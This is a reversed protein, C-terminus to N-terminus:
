KNVINIIEEINPRKKYDKDLLCDILAEWKENYIDTNIKKKEECLQDVKFKNLTLLEYIICGLAYIDVKNNYKKGEKLEPAMYDFTGVIDNKYKSTGLLIVAIDFNCIKIKNNENICINEPKIDRHIINNNHIEKIGYCIQLIIDIIIKEDILKNDDKIHKEIFRRLNSEGGYEMLIYLYDNDKFSDYFKIINENHFRKLIKIENNYNEIEVENLGKINIKKLTYYKDDKKVLIVDLFATKDLVRIEKYNQHKDM